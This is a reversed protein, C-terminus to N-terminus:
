PGSAAEEAIKRVAKQIEGVTFPKILYGSVGMSIAEIIADLTANGTIPVVPTTSGSNRLYVLFDLGDMAPMVIDLFILDFDQDRAMRLALAADQAVIVAHGEKILLRELFACMAADDDVVLISLTRRPTAANMGKNEAHLRSLHIWRLWRPRRLWTIM